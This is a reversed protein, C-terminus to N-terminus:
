KTQEHDAPNIQDIDSLNRLDLDLDLDPKGKETWAFGIAFMSVVLSLVLAVAMSMIGCLLGVLHWVNHQRFSTTQSPKVSPFVVGLGERFQTSDFTLEFLGFYRMWFLVVAVVFTVALLKRITMM